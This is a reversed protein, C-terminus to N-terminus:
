RFATWRWLVVQWRAGGRRWRLHYRSGLVRDGTRMVWTGQELVFPGEPAFARPELRSEDVRTHAALTTLYTAAPAGRLASDPRPPQVVLDPHLLPRLGRPNGGVFAAALAIREGAPAPDVSASHRPSEGCAAAGAVFGILVGARYRM